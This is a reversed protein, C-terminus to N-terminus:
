IDRLPVLFPQSNKKLCHGCLLESNKQLFVSILRLFFTTKFFFFQLKANAYNM